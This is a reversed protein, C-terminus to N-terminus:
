PVRNSTPPTSPLCVARTQRGASSEQRLSSDNSSRRLIGQALPLRKHNPPPNGECVLSTQHGASSEQPARAFETLLQPFAGKRQATPREHFDPRILLLGRVRVREGSSPPSPVSTRRSVREGPYKNAPDEIIAKAAPSLQPDDLIFWLFAHTDLLLRM